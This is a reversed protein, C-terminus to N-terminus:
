VTEEILRIDDEVEAIDRSEIADLEKSRHLKDTNKCQGDVFAGDEISLTEYMIVGIVRGNESLKVYRAKILGRVEGNVQVTEAIVDGKVLGNRHITVSTCTINGEIRGAVEVSGESILNGLINLDSSIISPVNSKAPYNGYDSTVSKPTNRSFM